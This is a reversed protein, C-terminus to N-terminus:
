DNPTEESQSMATGWMESVAKDFGERNVHGAAISQQLLNMALNVSTSHSLRVKGIEVVSFRMAFEGDLNVFASEPEPKIGVPTREHVLLSVEVDPGRDVALTSDATLRAFSNERTIPIGRDEITVPMPENKIEDTM